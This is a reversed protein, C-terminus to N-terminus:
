KGAEHFNVLIFIIGLGLSGVWRGVEYRGIPRRGTIPLISSFKEEFTEVWDQFGLFNDGVVLEPKPQEVGCDELTVTDNVDNSGGKLKFLVACSCEEIYLLGEIPYPM